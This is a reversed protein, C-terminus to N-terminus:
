AKIKRREHEILKNLKKSLKLIFHKTKELEKNIKKLQKKNEVEKSHLIISDYKEIAELISQINQKLDELSM